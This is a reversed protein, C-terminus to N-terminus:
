GEPAPKSGPEHRSNGKSPEPKAEVSASAADRFGVLSLISDAFKDFAEAPMDGLGQHPYHQVYWSVAELIEESVAKRIETGAPSPSADASGALGKGEERFAPNTTAAEGKGEALARVYDPDLDEGERSCIKAAQIISALRGELYTKYAAMDHLAEALAPVPPVPVEAIAEQRRKLQYVGGKGSARYDDWWKECFACRCGYDNHNMDTHDAM